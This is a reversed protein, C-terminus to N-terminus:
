GIKMINKTCYINMQEKLTNFLKVASQVGGGGDGNKLPILILSTFTINYKSYKVNESFTKMKTTSLNFTM